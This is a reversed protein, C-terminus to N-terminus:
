QTADEVDAGGSDFFKKPLNEAFKTKWENIREFFM